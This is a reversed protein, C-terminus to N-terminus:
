KNYEVAQKLQAIWENSVNPKLKPLAAQQLALRTRFEEVERDVAQEKVQLITWIFEYEYDEIGANLTSVLKQSLEYDEMLKSYFPNVQADSEKELTLPCDLSIAADVVQAAFAKGSQNVASKLSAM